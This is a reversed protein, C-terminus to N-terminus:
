LREFHRNVFTFIGTRDTMFIVEGSADVAQRLQLLESDDHKTASM